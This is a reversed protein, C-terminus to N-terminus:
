DVQDQGRGRIPREFFIGRVFVLKPEYFIIVGEMVLEVLHPLMAKARQDRAAPEHADDPVDAQRAALMALM